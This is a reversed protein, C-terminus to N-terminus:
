REGRDERLRGRGRLLLHQGVREEGLAAGAAKQVQTLAQCEAAFPGAGAPAQMEGAGLRLLAPQHIIHHILDLPQKLPPSPRCGVLPERAGRVGGPVSARKASSAAM